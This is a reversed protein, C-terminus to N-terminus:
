FDLPVALEIFIGIDSGREGVSRQDSLYTIKLPARGGWQFVLECNSM